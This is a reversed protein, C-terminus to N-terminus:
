PPPKTTGLFSNFESDRKLKSENKLNAIDSSPDIKSGAATPKQVLRPDEKAKEEAIM